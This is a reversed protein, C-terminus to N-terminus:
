LPIPPGLVTREGYIYVNFVAKPRALLERRFANNADKGAPVGYAEIGFSRCTFISRPLHSPASFLMAKRIRFVKAARECTEYTSRGAQDLQLNGADIGRDDVLYKKMAEPEDYHDFRNDGSLVLKELKGTELADAAADLRGRLEEYPKGDKTIGSGFVIGVQVDFSEHESDSLGTGTIYAASRGVVVYSGIIFVFLLLTFAGTINSIRRHDHFFARIRHSARGILNM